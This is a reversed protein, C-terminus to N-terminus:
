RIQKLMQAPSKIYTHRYICVCLIKKIKEFYTAYMTAREGLYTM